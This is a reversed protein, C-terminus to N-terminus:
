NKVVIISYKKGGKGPSQYAVKQSVIMRSLESLSSPVSRKQHFVGELKTILIKLGERTFSCHYIEREGRGGAREKSEGYDYQLSPVEGKRRSLPCTTESLSRPTERRTHRWLFGEKLTPLWHGEKERWLRSFLRGV